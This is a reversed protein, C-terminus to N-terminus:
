GFRARFYTPEKHDYNKDWDDGKHLVIQKGDSKRHHTVHLEPDSALRKWISKGGESHSSGSQLGKPADDSHLIAKYFDVANLQADPHKRTENTIFYGDKTNGGRTSFHVEDDPSMAMYHHPRSRDKPRSPSRFSRALINYDEHSGVYEERDYSGPGKIDGHELEYAHVGSEPAERIFQLFSKM